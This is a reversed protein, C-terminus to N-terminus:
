RWTGKNVAIHLPYSPPGKGIDNTATVIFKYFVSRTDNIGSHNYHWRLHGEHSVCGEYILEVNNKIVSICYNLNRSEQIDWFIDINRIYSINRLNGVREPLEILYTLM